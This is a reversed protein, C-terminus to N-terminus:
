RFGEKPFSLQTTSFSPPNEYERASGRHFSGESVAGKWTDQCPLSPSSSGRLPGELAFLLSLRQLIGPASLPVLWYLPFKHASTRFNQGEEFEVVREIGQQIESM